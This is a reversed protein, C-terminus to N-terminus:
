RGAGGFVWVLVLVWEGVGGTVKLDGVFMDRGGFGGCCGTEVM